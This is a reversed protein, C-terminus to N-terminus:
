SDWRVEAIPRLDPDAAKAIRRGLPFPRGPAPRAAAAITADVAVRGVAKVAARRTTAKTLHAAPVWGTLGHPTEVLAWADEVRHVDVEDGSGLRALIAGYTENRQDLLQVSDHRVEMRTVSEGAPGKFTVTSRASSGETPVDGRPTWFQAARVSPRLWSPISSEDEGVLAWGPGSARGDAKAATAGAVQPRLRSGRRKTVITLLAIGGLLALGLSAFVLLLAGSGSGGPRTPPLTWGATSGMGSGAGSGAATPSVLPQPSLISTGGPKPTASAPRTTPRPTAAPTPKPKPTIRPTPTPVPTPTPKPNPKPKHSGAAQALVGPPQDLRRESAIAPVVAVAAALVAAVLSASRYRPHPRM